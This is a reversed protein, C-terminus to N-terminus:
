ELTPIISACFFTDLAAHHNRREGATDYQDDILDRLAILLREPTSANLIADTAMEVLTREAKQDHVWMLAKSKTNNHITM